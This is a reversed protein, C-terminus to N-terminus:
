RTTPTCLGTGGTAPAGTSPATCPGRDFCEGYQAVTVETRQMEFTPVTVAHVPEEDASGGSSGMQFSGGPISVWELSAPGGGDAGSDASGDPPVGGDVGSDVVVAGDGYAADGGDQAAGSDVNVAGDGGDAFGSDQGGDDVGGDGSGPVGADGGGPAHCWGQDCTQAPGCPADPEPGTPNCPRRCTGEGDATLGDPCGNGSGEDPLTCVYLTPDDISPVCAAGTECDRDTTCPQRCRGYVCRLGSKCQSDGTCRDGVPRGSDKALCSALTPLVLCAMLVVRPCLV